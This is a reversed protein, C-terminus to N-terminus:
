GAISRSLDDALADANDLVITISEDASTRIVVGPGGNWLLGTKKGPVRRYGIGGFAAPSVQDIREVATIDKLDLTRQWLPSIGFTLQGHRVSVYLNSLAIGVGLGTGALLGLIPVFIAWDGDAAAAAVVIFVLCAAAIVVGLAKIGAPASQRYRFHDM